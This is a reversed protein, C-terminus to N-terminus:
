EVTCQDWAVRNTGSRKELTVTTEPERQEKQKMMVTLDSLSIDVNIDSAPFYSM